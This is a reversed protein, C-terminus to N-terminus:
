GPDNLPHLLKMSLFIGLLNIKSQSLVLTPVPLLIGALDSESTVKLGQDYSQPKGVCRVSELRAPLPLPM